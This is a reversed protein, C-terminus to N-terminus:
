KGERFVKWARKMRDVQGPTFESRCPSCPILKPEDSIMRFLKSEDM